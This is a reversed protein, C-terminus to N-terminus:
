ECRFCMLFVGEEGWVCRGVQKSDDYANGDRMMSGAAAHMNVEVKHVACDGRQRKRLQSNVFVNTSALM